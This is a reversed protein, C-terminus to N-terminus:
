MINVGYLFSVSAKCPGGYHMKKKELFKPSIAHDGLRGMNTPKMKGIEM